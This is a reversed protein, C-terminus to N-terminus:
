IAVSEETGDKAVVLTDIADNENLGSEFKNIIVERNFFEYVDIPKMLSNGVWHNPMYKDKIYFKQSSTCFHIKKVHLVKTVVWELNDWHIQFKRDNCNEHTKLSKKYRRGEETIGQENKTNQNSFIKITNKLHLM